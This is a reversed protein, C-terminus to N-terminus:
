PCGRLHYPNRLHHGGGLGDVPVGPPPCRRIWPIEWWPIGHLPCRHPAIRIPFAKPSGQGLGEGVDGDPGGIIRACRDELVRFLTLHLILRSGSGDNRLEFSRKRLLKDLGIRHYAEAYVSIKGSNKQMTTACTFM